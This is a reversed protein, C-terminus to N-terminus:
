TNLFIWEDVEDPQVDIEDGAVVKTRVRSTESVVITGGPNSTADPGALMVQYWAADEAAFGTPPSWESPPTFGGPSATLNVWAAGDGVQIM